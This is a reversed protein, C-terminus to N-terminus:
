PYQSPACSESFLDEPRLPRMMAESDNAQVLADALDTLAHAMRERKVSRLVKPMGPTKSALTAPIGGRATLYHLMFDYAGLDDEARLESMLEANRLKLRIPVNPDTPTPIQVRHATASPALPTVLLEPPGYTQMAITMYGPRGPKPPPVYGVSGGYVDFYCSARGNLVVDDSPVYDPYYSTLRPANLANEDTYDIGQEVCNLVQLRTGKLFDGHRLLHPVSLEPGEVIELHPFHPTLYYLVPGSEQPNVPSMGPEPQDAIAVTGAQIHTTDALVVRHPVGSVVGYRFHTCIGHTEIILHFTNM